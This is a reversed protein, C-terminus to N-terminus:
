SLVVGPAGLATHIEAEFTVMLRGAIAKGEGDLVVSVGRPVLDLFLGATWAGPAMATEVESLMDHLQDTPDDTDEAMLDINIQINRGMRAASGMSLREIAEDGVSISLCPLDSAQIRLVRDTFANAGTTDLGTLQTKIADRAQIRVHDPM